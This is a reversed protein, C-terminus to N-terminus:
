PQATATSDRSGSPSTTTEPSTKKKADLNDGPSGVMGALLVAFAPKMHELPPTADFYNV